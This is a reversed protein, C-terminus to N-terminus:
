QLTARLELRDCAQFTTFLIARPLVLYDGCFAPLNNDLSITFGIVARRNNNSIGTDIFIPSLLVRFILALKGRRGCYTPAAKLSPARGRPV